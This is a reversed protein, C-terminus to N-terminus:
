LEIKEDALHLWLVDARVTIIIIKLVSVLYTGQLSAYINTCIAVTMRKLKFSKSFKTYSFWMEIMEVGGRRRIGEM